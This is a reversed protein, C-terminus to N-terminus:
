KRLAKLYGDLHPRFWKSVPIVAEFFGQDMKVRGQIKLHCRQCLAALNWDECNAKNGDLHHVTLVHKTDFCHPHGCRECKWGAIDKIRLAIAPWTEPYTDM